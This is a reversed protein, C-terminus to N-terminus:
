CGKEKLKRGRHDEQRKCGGAEKAEKIMIGRMEDQM